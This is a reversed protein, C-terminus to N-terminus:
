RAAWSVTAAASRSVSAAVAAEEEQSYVKAPFGLSDLVMQATKAESRRSVHLTWWAQLVDSFAALSAQSSGASALDTSLSPSAATSASYSYSPDSEWDDGIQLVTSPM